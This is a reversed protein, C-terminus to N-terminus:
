LKAHTNKQTHPAIIKDDARQKTHTYPYFKVGFGFEFRFISNHIGIFEISM